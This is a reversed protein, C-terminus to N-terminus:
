NPKFHPPIITYNLDNLGLNSHLSVQTKYNAYFNYVLCESECGCLDVCCQPLLPQVALVEDM